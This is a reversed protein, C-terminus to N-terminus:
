LRGEGRWELQRLGKMNMLFLRLTKDESPKEARPLYATIHGGTSGM